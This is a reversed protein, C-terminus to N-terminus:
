SDAFVGRVQIWHAALEARPSHNGHHVFFGLYGEQYDPEVIEAMVVTRNLVFTLSPGIAVVQFLNPQGLGPSFPLDPALPGAVLPDHEGDFRSVVVHGSPSVAFTYYLEPSPSRVFIGYLDDDAGAALEVEAEVIVDRFVTQDAAVGQNGDPVSTGIRLRGDQYVVTGEPLGPLAPQHTWYDLSLLIPPAGSPVPM